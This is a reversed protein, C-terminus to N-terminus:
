ALDELLGASELLDYTYQDVDILVHEEIVNKVSTEILMEENLVLGFEDGECISTHHQEIEELYQTLKV